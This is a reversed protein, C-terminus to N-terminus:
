DHDAQCRGSRTSYCVCEAPELGLSALAAREVIALADQHWSFGGAHAVAEHLADIAERLEAEKQMDAVSM